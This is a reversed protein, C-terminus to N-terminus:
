VATQSFTIAPSRAKKGICINKVESLNPTLSPELSITVLFCSVSDDKIAVDSCVM